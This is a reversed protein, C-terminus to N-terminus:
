KIDKELKIKLNSQNFIWLLTAVKWVFLSREISGLQKLHKETPILKWIM